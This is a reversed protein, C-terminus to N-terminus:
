VTLNGIDMGPKLVVLDVRKTLKRVLYGVLVTDIVNYVLELGETNYLYEQCLQKKLIQGTVVFNLVDLTTFKRSVHSIQL